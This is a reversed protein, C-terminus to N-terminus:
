GSTPFWGTTSVTTDFGISTEVAFSRSGSGEGTVPASQFAMLQQRFGPTNVNALNNAINDQRSMTGKAAQAALYILKDM